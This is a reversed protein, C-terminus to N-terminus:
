GKWSSSQPLAEGEAEASAPVLYSSVIVAVL